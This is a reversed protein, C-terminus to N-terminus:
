TLSRSQASEEGSYTLQKAHCFCCPLSVHKGEESCEKQIDFYVLRKASCSPCTVQNLTASIQARDGIATLESTGRTDSYDALTGVRVYRPKPTTEDAEIKSITGIAPESGFLNIFFVSKCSPCHAVALTGADVVLTDPSREVPLYFKKKCSECRLVKTM